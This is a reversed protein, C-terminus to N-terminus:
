QKDYVIISKVEGNQGQRVSKVTLTKADTLTWEETSKMVKTEGNIDRNRSTAINLTKGDASWTAISKSEGRPTTNVCEKGDLTYKITITISQGDEGTRTRVVSLLNADQTASFNGGGMRQGGGEPLTSKEKNMNWTGTFNVKGTQANTVVPTIIAIMIILSILRVFNSRNNRFSEIKKKM